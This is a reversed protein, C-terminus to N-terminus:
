KTMSQGIRDVKIRNPRSQENPGIRDIQTWSQDIKTWNRGKKKKKKKKKSAMWKQASVYSPFSMNLNLASLELNM